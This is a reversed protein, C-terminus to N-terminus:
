KGFTRHWRKEARNVVHEIAWRETLIILIGLLMGLTVHRM